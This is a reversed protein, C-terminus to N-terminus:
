SASRPSSIAISPPTRRLEILREENLARLLGIGIGERGWRLPDNAVVKANDVSGAVDDDTVECPRGKPLQKLMAMVRKAKRREEIPCIAARQLKREEAAKERAESISVDPWRGLGMEKRMGGQALRLVWKGARPDRKILWLGQGDAYKGAVLNRATM